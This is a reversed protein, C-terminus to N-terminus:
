LKHCTFCLKSESKRFLRPNESFHPKHCGLCAFDDGNRPFDDPIQTTPRRAEARRHNSHFSTHCGRCLANGKRVLQYEYPSAHPSHCDSCLLEKVPEHVTEGEELERPDKDDHCQVCLEGPPWANLLKRNESYHPNHCALCEGEAVPGHVYELEEGDENRTFDDHCGFCTEKLDSPIEIDGDELSHCSDCGEELAPHMNYSKFEIEGAQTKFTFKELKTGAIYFVKLTENGVKLVNLGPFLEVEASFFGEAEVTQKRLFNVEIKVAGPEDVYGYVAIVKGGALFKDPPYIVTVSAWSFCPLVLLALLISFCFSKKM